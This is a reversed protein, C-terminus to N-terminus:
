SGPKAGNALRSLSFEAEAFSPRPPEIAFTGSDTLDTAVTQM